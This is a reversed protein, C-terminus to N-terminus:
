RRAASPARRAPTCWTCRLRESSKVKSRQCTTFCRGHSARRCARLPAICPDLCSSRCGHEASRGPACCIPPHTCQSQLSSTIQHARCQAPVSCNLPAPWAAPSASPARAAGSRLRLSSYARTRSRLQARRRAAAGTPRGQASGRRQQQPSCLRAGGYAWASAQAKATCTVFGTFETSTPRRRRRQPEQAPALVGACPNRVHVTCSPLQHCPQLVAQPKAGTLMSSRKPQHPSHAQSATPFSPSHHAHQTILHLTSYNHQLQM